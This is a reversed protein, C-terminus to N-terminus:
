KEREEVRSMIVGKYLKTKLIDDKKVQQANKLLYKEKKSKTDILYTVSYGRSLISLPNLNILRNLVQQVNHDKTKLLHSINTHVMKDLNDLKQQYQEVIAQPRRLAYSQKLRSFYVQYIRVKKGIAENVRRYINALDAVLKEKEQVVLEAAASPTSARLDAVFDCITYDIEHGVASIVPIRSKYVARAVAEENFPWLDELSGGGRAVIIVDVDKFKNLDSIGQAVDEAAAQGQVQAHRIVVHVNAYRRNIVQLIDRIAAGTASTVIGIKQPLFPIPRKRAIDFLGEATLKKKLQEFALQLAGKGKPEIKKVYLQYQGGQEYVSVRGFICCAIGEELKFNLKNNDARFFVCKLQAKEDKLTFYIHGSHPLRLTSIEGEVWVNPFSDELIKRIDRTIESVTYIYKEESLGQM